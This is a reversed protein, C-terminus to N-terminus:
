TNLHNILEDESEWRTYPLAKVVNNLYRGVSDAHRLGMYIEETSMDALHGMYTYLGGSNFRVCITETQRHHYISHVNSSDETREWDINSLNPM